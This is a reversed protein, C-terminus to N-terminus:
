KDAAQVKELVGIPKRKPLNPDLSLQPALDQSVLQSYYITPWNHPAVQQHSQDRTATVDYTHTHPLLQNSGLVNDETDIYAESYDACDGFHRTGFDRQTAYISVPDLYTTQVLVQPKLQKLRQCAGYIVFAGCSHGVLQVSVLTPSTALVEGLQEGIRKGSIACRLPMQAHKSWDLGEIQTNDFKGRYIQLLPQVWTNLDDNVGHTLIIVHPQEPKFSQFNIDAMNRPWFVFGLIAANAAIFSLVPFYVFLWLLLRIWPNKLGKRLRQIFSTSTV